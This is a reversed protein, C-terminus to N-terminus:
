RNITNKGQTDRKSKELMVGVYIEVQRPERIDKPMKSKKGHSCRQTKAYYVAVCFFVVMHVLIVNRM